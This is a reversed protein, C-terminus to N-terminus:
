GCGGGHPRHAEAGGSFSGQGASQHDNLFNGSVTSVLVDRVRTWILSPGLSGRPGM